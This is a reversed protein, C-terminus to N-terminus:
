ETKQKKTGGALRFQICYMDKQPSVNRVTRVQVDLMKRQGLAKECREKLEAADEQGKAAFGYVYLQEVPWTYDALVDLFEAATAPLNLVAVDFYVQKEDYLHRCFARADMNYMYFTPNSSARPNLGRNEQLYQFSAPNLDNAHVTLIPQQQDVCSALPIAFPGVGAMWDAVVLPKSKEQQTKLIREVVREHEHSLRSNWYVTAYDLRFTFGNEKTTALSWGPSDDGAVVTMPFTRYANSIVGSKNVVTRIRPQNCDLLIKGIFYQYPLLSPPLNLHAIHGVNEFATPPTEGLHSPLLQQLLEAASQDGYARTTAQTTWDHPFPLLDLAAIQEKSTKSDLIVIRKEKSDAPRVNKQGKAIYQKLRKLVTATEKVPVVIAPHQTTQQFLSTDPFSSADYVENEDEPSPVPLSDFVRTTTSSVSEATSPTTM